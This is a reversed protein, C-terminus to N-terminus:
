RETSPNGASSQEKKNQDEPAIPDGKRGCATVLLMLLFCAILKM